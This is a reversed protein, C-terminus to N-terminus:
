TDGREEDVPDHPAQSRETASLNYIKACMKLDYGPSFKPLYQGAIHLLEGTVPHRGSHPQRYHLGLTGLGRMTISGGNKLTEHIVYICTDLITDIDKMTYSVSTDSNKIVFDKKNGEDDSIHFVQRKAYVPKKIDNDRMISAVRNVLERRNM